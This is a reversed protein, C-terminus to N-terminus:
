GVVVDEQCGAGRHPRAAWIIAQTTQFDVKHAHIATHVVPSYLMACLAKRSQARMTLATHRGGWGNTKVIPRDSRPYAAPPPVPVAAWSALWLGPGSMGSGPARSTCDAAIRLRQEARMPRPRRRPMSRQDRRRRGR